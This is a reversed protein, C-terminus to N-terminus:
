STAAGSPRADPNVNVAFWDINGPQTYAQIVQGQENLRVIQESDAVLLQGTQDGCEGSIFRLAYAAFGSLSNAVFDPLQKNAGVDYRYVSQDESTYYITQQDPALTVWDTGRFGTKVTYV